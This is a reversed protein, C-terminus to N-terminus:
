LPPGGFGNCPGKMDTKNIQCITCRVFNSGYMWSHTSEWESMKAWRERMERMARETALREEKDEWEARQGELDECAKIFRKGLEREHVEKLAAEIDARLEKEREPTMAYRDTGHGPILRDTM